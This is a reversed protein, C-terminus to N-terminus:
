PFLCLSEELCDFILFITRNTPSKAPASISDSDAFHFWSHHVQFGAGPDSRLARGRCLSGVKIRQWQEQVDVTM